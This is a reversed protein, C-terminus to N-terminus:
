DPASRRRGRGLHTDGFATPYKLGFGLARDLGIHATWILTLHAPRGLELLLAATLLALPLAYTHAVNYALAGVRPGALYAAFSLDPALFLLAFWLWSAGLVWYLTVSLALVALGEVRLWGRVAGTVPSM